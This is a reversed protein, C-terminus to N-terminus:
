QKLENFLKILDDAVKDFEGSWLWDEDEAKAMTSFKIKLNTSYKCLINIIKEKM